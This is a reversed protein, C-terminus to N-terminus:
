SVFQTIFDLFIVFSPLGHPIFSKQETETVESNNDINKNLEIETVESSNDINM